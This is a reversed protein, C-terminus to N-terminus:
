GNYFFIVIISIDCDCPCDGGDLIDSATTLDTLSERVDNLSLNPRGKILEEVVVKKHKCFVECIGKCVM